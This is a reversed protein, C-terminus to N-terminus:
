ENSSNTSNLMEEFTGESTDEFCFHYGALVDGSIMFVLATGDNLHHCVAKRADKSDTYTVTGISNEVNIKFDIFDRRIIQCHHGAIEAEEKIQAELCEAIKFVSRLVGVQDMLWCVLESDKLDSTFFEIPSYVPSALLCSEEASIAAAATPATSSLPESIAQM